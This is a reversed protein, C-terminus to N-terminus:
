ATVDSHPDQIFNLYELGLRTIHYSELKNIRQLRPAKVEKPKQSYLQHILNTLTEGILDLNQDRKEENRSELMGLRYLKEQIWRYQSEDIGASKMLDVYTEDANDRTFKVGYLKLVRIDLENMQSLTNFFTFVIDDNPNRVAMLNIYGNINYKVKAEQNESVINDLLADRYSGDIFKQRVQPELSDLRQVISNQNEQFANLAKMVNREFRRQQFALKVGFVAPAVGSLIGGTLLQIGAAVSSNGLIQAAANGIEPLNDLVFGTGEEAVSKVVDEGIEKIKDSIETQKM